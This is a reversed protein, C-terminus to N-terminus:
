LPLGRVSRRGKCRGLAARVRPEHVDSMWRTAATIKTGRSGIVGKQWAGRVEVWGRILRGNWYRGSPLYEGSSLPAVGDHLTSSLGALAISMSFIAIHHHSDYFPYEKEVGFGIREGWPIKRM